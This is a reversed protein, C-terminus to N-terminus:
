FYSTQYFLLIIYCFYINYLLMYLLFSIKTYLFFIHNMLDVENFGGVIVFTYIKKPLKQKVIGKISKIDEILKKDETLETCRDFFYIAEELNGLILNLYGMNYLIDVNYKDLRLGELFLDLAEELKNQKLKVTGLISYYEIGFSEKYLELYKKAEEFKNNNICEEIKSKLDYINIEKDIKYNKNDINLFEYIFNRLEEDQKVVLERIKNLDKM